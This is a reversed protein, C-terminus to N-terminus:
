TYRASVAVPDNYEARIAKCYPGNMVFRRCVSPRTEYIGCNMDATNLAACWGEGGAEDGAPRRAVLDYPLRSRPRGTSPDSNPPLVCGRVLLM